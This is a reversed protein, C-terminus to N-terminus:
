AVAPEADPEGDLDSPAVFDLTAVWAAAAVPVLMLASRLVERDGLQEAKIVDGVAGALRSRNGMADGEVLLEYVQRGINDAVERAVSERIRRAARENRDFVRQDGRVGATGRKAM